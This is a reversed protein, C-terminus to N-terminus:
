GMRGKRDLNYRGEGKNGMKFKSSKWGLKMLEGGVPAYGRM